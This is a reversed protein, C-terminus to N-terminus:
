RERLKKKERLMMGYDIRRLAANVTSVIRNARTEDTKADNIWKIFYGQHSKTISYFYEAAEPEFDFCQQLDEPVELKYDVDFELRVRLMAGKSKRVGKRMAENLPLIFKGEGHPLLAKGAIAFGDLFGRVRFSRKDKPKLQMAIDPPVEIYNWGTKDGYENFQQIITNFDVM